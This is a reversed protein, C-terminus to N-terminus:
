WREDTCGHGCWEASDVASIPAPGFRVIILDESPIVEVMQDVWDSLVFPM